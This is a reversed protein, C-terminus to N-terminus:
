KPRGGREDFSSPSASDPSQHGLLTGPRGREGSGLILLGDQRRRLVSFTFLAGHHYDRATLVCRGERTM